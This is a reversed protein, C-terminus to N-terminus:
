QDQGEKIAALLKQQARNVAPNAWEYDQRFATMATAVALAESESLEVVVTM